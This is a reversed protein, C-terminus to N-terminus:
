SRPTDGEGLSILPTKETVPLRERYRHLVGRQSSPETAPTSKM